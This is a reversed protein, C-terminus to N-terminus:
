PCNLTLTLPLGDPSIEMAEANGARLAIRGSVGEVDGSIDGMEGLGASMAFRAQSWEHEPSFSLDVRGPSAFNVAAAGEHDEGLFAVRIGFGEGNGTMILDNASFECRLETIAHAGQGWEAEGFDGPGAVPPAAAPAEDTADGGCGALALMMSLAVLGPLPKLTM